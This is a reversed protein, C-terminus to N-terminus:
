TAGGQWAIHGRLAEPDPRTWGKSAAYATMAAFDKRWTASDSQGSAEILWDVSVWAHDTDQFEVVGRLAAALAPLADPAAAVIVSFRRLDEVATLRAPQGPALHVEM